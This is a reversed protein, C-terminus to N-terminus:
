VVAGPTEHAGRRVLRLQDDDNFAGNGLGVHAGDEGVDVCPQPLEGFDAGVILLDSALRGGGAKAPSSTEMKLRLCSWRRAFLRSLPSEPKAHIREVSLTRALALQGSRLAAEVLTLDFVDRQAHSGGFRAAIGRVPRILRM